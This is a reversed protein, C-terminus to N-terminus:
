PKWGSAQLWEQLTLLGPHEARLGGLDPRREAITFAIAAFEGIDSIAMWTGALLAHRARTM